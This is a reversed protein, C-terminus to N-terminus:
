PTIITARVFVLIKRSPDLNGNAKKATHTMFIQFKKNGLMISGQARQTEIEPMAVDARGNQDKHTQWTTFRPCSVMESNLRLAIRDTGDELIAPEIELTHGLHRTEFATPPAARGQPQPPVTSNGNSFSPGEYETPYIFERISECTAKEGSRATMIEMSIIKSKGQRILEHVAAYTDKKDIVWTLLTHPIEVHRVEIRLHRHAVNGPLNGESPVGSLPLLLAALLLITKM